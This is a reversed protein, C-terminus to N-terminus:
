YGSLILNFVWMKHAMISKVSSKINTLMRLTFAVFFSTDRLMVKADLPTPTSPNLSLFTLPLTGKNQPGNHHFTMLNVWRAGVLIIEIIIPSRM